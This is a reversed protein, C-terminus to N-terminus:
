NPEFALPSKNCGKRFHEKLEKKTQTKPASIVSKLNLINRKPIPLFGCFSSQHGIEVAKDLVTIKTITTILIKKCFFIM